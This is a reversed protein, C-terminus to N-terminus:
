VGRPLMKIKNSIKNKVMLLIPINRILKRGIARYIPYDQYYYVIKGGWQEKFHNVGKLHGRPNIQWGAFDVFSYKGKIGLLILNWYIFDNIRLKFAIEETGLVTFRLGRKNLKQGYMKTSVEKTGFCGLIRNEQIVLYFRGGSNLFLEEEFKKYNWYSSGGAILTKCYLKYGKRIDEKETTRLIKLGNAFSQQAYKRRCYDIKRWSDEIDNRKLYLIITAKIDKM